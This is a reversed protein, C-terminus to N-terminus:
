ASIPPVLLKDSPLLQVKKKKHSASQRSRHEGNFRNHLYADMTLECFRFRGECNQEIIERLDDGTVRDIAGTKGRPICDEGCCTTGVNEAVNM